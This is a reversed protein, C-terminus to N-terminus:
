EPFEEKEEKLVIGDDDEGIPTQDDDEGGLEDDLTANPDRENVGAGMPPPVEGKEDTGAYCGACEIADNSGKPDPTQVVTLRPVERPQLAVRMGCLCQWEVKGNDMRRIPKDLLHYIM